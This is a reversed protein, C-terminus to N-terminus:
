HIRRQRKQWGTRKSDIGILLSFHFLFVNATRVFQWKRFSSYNPLWLSHSDLFEIGVFAFFHFHTLTCDSMWHEKWDARRKKRRRRKIRTKMWLSIIFIGDRTKRHTTKINIFVQFRTSNTNLYQIQQKKKCSTLEFGFPRHWNM